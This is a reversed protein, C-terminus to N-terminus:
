DHVCWQMGPTSFTERNGLSDGHRGTGTKLYSAIDFGRHPHWNVPFEDPDSVPGNKEHMDFYDCMLFPDSDVTPIASPFAQKVTRADGFPHTLGQKAIRKIGMMMTASTAINHTKMCITVLSIIYTNECSAVVITPQPLRKQFIIVHDNHHNRTIQEWDTSSFSISCARVEGLIDLDAAPARWLLSQLGRIISPTSSNM